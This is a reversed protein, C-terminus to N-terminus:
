NPIVTTIVGRMAKELEELKVQYIVSGKPHWKAAVHQVNQFSTIKGAAIALKEVKKQIHFNPMESFGPNPDVVDVMNRLSDYGTLVVAHLFQETNHNQSNFLTNPKILPLAMGDRLLTSVIKKVQNPQVDDFCAHLNPLSPLHSYTNYNERGYYSTSTRDLELSETTTSIEVTFNGLMSAVVVPITAYAIREAFGLDTFSLGFLNAREAFDTMSFQPYGLATAILHRASSSMCGGGLLGSGDPTMVERNYRYGQHRYADRHLQENHM